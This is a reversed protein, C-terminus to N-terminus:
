IGKGNKSAGRVILKSIFNLGVTLFMTLAFMRVFWLIANSKLILLLVAIPAFILINIVSLRFRTKLSFGECDFKIFKRELFYGLYFGCGAGCFKLFQIAISNFTLFDKAFIFAVGFCLSAIILSLIKFDKLKSLIFSMLLTISIGLILGFICDYITHVGLYIRSLMVLIILLSLILYMWWKKHKYTILATSTASVCTSHGSPFSYGTVEILKKINENREFPRKIKFINKFAFASIMAAAFSSIVIFSKRKNSLIYVLCLFIQAFILSGFFTFFKFFYTLFQSEVSQLILNFQM